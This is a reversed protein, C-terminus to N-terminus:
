NAWGPRPRGYDHLVEMFLDYREVSVDPGISHSGIVLGGDGAVSLVHNVHARVEADTGCPLVQTNCMGGVFALRDGYRRRLEVVDIKARPEIPNLISIGADVLGNLVQHLDGDSHMGVRAAGAARFAAVMRRMQPLFIWEYSAPSMPLGENSAIDDFIWISQQYLDTRRLAELGIAILHDTMREALAAAFTPDETIDMLWQYDGRLFSCRLYPGGVKIFLYPRHPMRRAHAMDALMAAYRKDSDSPEFESSRVNRL